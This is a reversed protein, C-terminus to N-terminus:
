RYTYSFLYASQHGWDACSLIKAGQSWGLQVTHSLMSQYTSLCIMVQVNKCAAVLAGRRHWGECWRGPTGPSWRDPVHRAGQDRPTWRSRRGVRGAESGWTWEGCSARIQQDSRGGAPPPWSPESEAGNQWRGGQRWFGRETCYLDREWAGASTHPSTRPHLDNTLWTVSITTFDFIM